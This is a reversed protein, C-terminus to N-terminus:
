RIRVQVDTICRYSGSFVFSIQLSQDATRRQSLDITQAIGFPHKVITSTVNLSRPSSYGKISILPKAGSPHHDSAGIHPSPTPSPSPVPARDPSSSTTDVMSPWRPPGTPPPPTAPCRQSPPSTQLPM